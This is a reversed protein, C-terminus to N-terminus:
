TKGEGAPCIIQDECIEDIHMPSYNIAVALLALAM